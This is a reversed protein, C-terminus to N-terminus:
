ADAAFLEPFEKKLYEGAKGQTEQAEVQTKEEGTIAVGGHQSAPNTKRLLWFNAAISEQWPRSHRTLYDGTEWIPLNRSNTWASLVMDNKRCIWVLM